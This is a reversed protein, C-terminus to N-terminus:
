LQLPLQMQPPSVCVPPASEPLGHLKIEALAHAVTPYRLVVKLEQKMRVNTLRRSENMFSLLMPSLVKQAEARTVRPPHPLNFADAVADFYDGMKMHYDDTTHYIRNPKAHRLAAIISAALDDAHIHNTYGDEAAIIAPTDKQIREVPLRNTAYIGPVRLISAHVGSRKAWHRIKNEADLRRKARANQAQTPHTEHVVEGRCDGYVGSTSIYIMKQPLKGRSLAAILNRTRTDSIAHRGETAAPPAFHLVIQSLGGLRDLSHPDDLDGMLPVIGSTRLKEMHLPNRILGFLQYHNRLLGAVRLAIDGCGVILIRMM